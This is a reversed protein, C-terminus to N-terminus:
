VHMVSGALQGVANKYIDRYILCMGMYISWVGM